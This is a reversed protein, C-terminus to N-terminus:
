GQCLDLDSSQGCESVHSIKILRFEGINGEGAVISLHDQFISVLFSGYLFAKWLKIWKHTDINSM